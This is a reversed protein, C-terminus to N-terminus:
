VLRHLFAKISKSSTPSAISGGGSNRDFWFLHGTPLEFVDDWGYDDEIRAIPRADPFFVELQFGNDLIEEFEDEDLEKGSISALADIVEETDGYMNDFLSEFKEFQNADWQSADISPISSESINQSLGALERLRNLEKM